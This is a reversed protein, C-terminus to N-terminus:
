DSLTGSKESVKKPNQTELPGTPGSEKRKM